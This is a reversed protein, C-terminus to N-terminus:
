NESLDPIADISNQHVNYDVMCIFRRFPIACCM